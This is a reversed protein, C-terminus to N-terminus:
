REWIQRRSNVGRGLWFASGVERCVKKVKSLNRGNNPQAPQTGNVPSLLLMLMPSVISRSVRSFGCRASRSSNTRHVLVDLEREALVTDEGDRALDAILQRQREIRRESDAIRDTTARILHRWTAMKM